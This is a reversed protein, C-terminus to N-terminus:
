DHKLFFQMYLLLSVYIAYNSPEIDNGKPVEIVFIPKSKAIM